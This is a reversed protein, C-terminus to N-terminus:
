RQAFASAIFDNLRSINGGCNSNKMPHRNQKPASKLWSINNHLLIYIVRVRFFCHMTFLCFYIIEIMWCVRSRQYYYKHCKPVGVRLIRGRTVSYSGPCLAWPPAVQELYARATARTRLTNDLFFSSWCFCCFFDLRRPRRSRKAPRSHLGAVGARVLNLDLWFVSQSILTLTRHSYSPRSQNQHSPPLLM